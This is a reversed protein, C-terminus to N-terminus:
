FCYGPMEVGFVQGIWIQYYAGAALHAQAIEQQPLQCVCINVHSGGKPGFKASYMQQFADLFVLLAFPAITAEGAIRIIRRRLARSRPASRNCRSLRTRVATTSMGITTTSTNRAGMATTASIVANTASNA